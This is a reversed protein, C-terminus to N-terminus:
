LLARTVEPGPPTVPSRRQTESHGGMWLVATLEAKGHVREAGGSARGSLDTCGLVM